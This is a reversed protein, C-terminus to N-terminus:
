KLSVAQIGLRECWGLFTQYVEDLTQKQQDTLPQTSSRSVQRVPVGRKSLFYKSSMPYAKAILDETKTLESQIWMVEKEKAPNKTHNCMWVLIEPYFNGSIASMGKAGHQLSFVTNETHADYFELRSNKLLVLKAKIMERDISTDKHYVLRNTELLSKFVEPSVIRKYPSPCEYLGMPINDTLELMREINDLLVIDSEEKTAYHSTILIVASVGTQYIEKAFEVRESMTSGFSGTAVVPVRGNVYNVVHRTLALREGKELHYMESSLCNAFFGKVGTALYFDILRSVGDFDIKGNELFPTIMVPVFKKDNSNPTPTMPLTKPDAQSLETAYGRLSATAIVATASLKKLFSQRSFKNEQEM